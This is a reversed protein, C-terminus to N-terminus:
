TWAPCTEFTDTPLIQLVTDTAVPAMERAVIHVRAGPARSLVQLPGTFDLQTVDAFVVFGIRLDGGMGPLSM